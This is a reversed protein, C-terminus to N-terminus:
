TSRKDNMKEKNQLYEIIVPCKGNDIVRSCPLVELRCVDFNNKHKCEKVLRNIESVDEITM